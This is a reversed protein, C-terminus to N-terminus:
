SQSCPCYHPYLLAVLTPFNYIKCTETLNYLELVDPQPILFVMTRMLNILLELFLLLIIFNAVFVKFKLNKNLNHLSLSLSPSRPIRAIKSTMSIRYRLYYILICLTCLIFPVFTYPIAHFEVKYINQIGQELLSMQQQQQQQQQTYLM